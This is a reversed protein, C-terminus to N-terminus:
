LLVVKLDSVKYATVPKKLHIQSGVFVFPERKNVRREKGNFVFSTPLLYIQPAKISETIPSSKLDISSDYQFDEDGPLLTNEFDTGEIEEAMEINSVNRIKLLDDSNGATLAYQPNKFGDRVRSLAIRNKSAIVVTLLYDTLYERILVDKLSEGSKVKNYKWLDRMEGEYIGIVGFRVGERARLKMADEFNLGIAAGMLGTLTTIPPLPLTKQFTHCEPIRFSATSAFAKVTFAFM